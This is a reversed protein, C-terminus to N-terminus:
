ERIEASELVLHCAWCPDGPHDAPAPQEPNITPLFLHMAGWGFLVTVAIGAVWVVVSKM